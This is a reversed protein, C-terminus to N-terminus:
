FFDAASYLPKFSGFHLFGPDPFPDGAVVPFLPMRKKFFLDKRCFRDLLGSQIDATETQVLGEIIILPDSGFVQSGVTIIIVFPYLILGEIHCLFEPFATYQRNKQPIAPVFRAKTKICM